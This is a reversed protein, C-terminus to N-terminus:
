MTRPLSALIQALTQRQPLGFVSQQGGQGGAAGATHIGRSRDPQGFGLMPALKALIDASAGLTSLVDGVGGKQPAPPTGTAAPSPSYPVNLPGTPKPMNDMYNFSPTAQMQSPMPSNQIPMQSLISGIGMMATPDTQPQLAPLAQPPTTPQGMTFIDQAQSQPAGGAPAATTTTKNTPNEQLAASGMTGAASILSLVILDDIGFVM